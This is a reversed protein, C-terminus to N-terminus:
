KLKLLKLKRNLLERKIQYKEQKTNEQKEKETRYNLFSRKGAEADPYAPYTVPSIDLLRGVKKITRITRGDADEDWSDEEVIFGFSSQSVDGRELSVMLDRGYSTDPATFNYKLGREDVSLNLTGSTTRGLIYNPDHNFLARVDNELVGDFAKPDIKERFGGLNESLATNGESDRFVSAYGVVERNESNEVRIESNIFNRRELGDVNLKNRKNVNEKDMLVIKVNESDEFDEFNKHYNEIYELWEEPRENKAIELCSEKSRKLYIIEAGLEDVIKQRNEKYPTSNIIWARINKDEQLKAYIAKRIEFVYDKIHKLHIHSRNISIAQHITDFDFILDDSSANSRVYTSKGSCSSGLVLYIKNQDM